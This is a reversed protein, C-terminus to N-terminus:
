GHYDEKNVISHNTFDFLMVTGTDDETMEIVERWLSKSAGL